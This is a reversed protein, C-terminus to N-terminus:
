NQSTFEEIAREVDVRSVDLRKLVRSAIGRDERVIGLLIHESGIYGHQLRAAEERAMFLIQRVRKTFRDNM